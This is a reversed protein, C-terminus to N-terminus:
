RKKAEWYEKLEIQPNDRLLDWLIYRHTAGTIVVLRKGAYEQAVRAINGAMIKNRINWQDRFFHDFQFLEKCEPYKKLIEPVIEYRLSKKIRIISDHAESNIVKPGANRSLAGEARGAYGQLQAIKVNLSNPENQLLCEGCKKALKNAKKQREFYRTERFNEERDPRDFPIQKIGLQQAVTDAAWCEPGSPNNKRRSRELPRGNPEVKSLPLENLIADPKLTLIIEKLVGPSYNPNEYHTSHITGIIIVQTKKAKDCLEEQKVTNALCLSGCILILWVIKHSKTM